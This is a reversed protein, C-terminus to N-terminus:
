RKCDDFILNRKIYMPATDMIKSWTHYDSVLEGFELPNYINFLDNVFIYTNNKTNENKQSTEAM